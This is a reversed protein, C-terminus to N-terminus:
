MRGATTSSMPSRRGPAARSCARPLGHARRRVHREVRYVVVRQDPGNTVPPWPATLTPGGGIVIEAKGDGDLDGAAVSAGPVIGPELVYFSSLKTGDASSAELRAGDVFQALLVIDGHGDGNVDGVAIQPTTTPSEVYPHLSAVVAGTHTDIVNVQM